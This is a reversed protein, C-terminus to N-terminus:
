LTPLFRYVENVLSAISAINGLSSLLSEVTSKRPRGRSLENALVGIDNVAADCEAKGIAADRGLTQIMANFLRSLEEPNGQTQRISDSNVAINGGTISGITANRKDIQVNVTVPHEEKQDNQHQRFVAPVIDPHTYTQGLLTAAAFADVELGTEPLKDKATSVPWFGKFLDRAVNGFLSFQPPLLDPKTLTAVYTFFAYYRFEGTHRDRQRRLCGFWCTTDLAFAGLYAGLKQTFPYYPNILLGGGMKIFTYNGILESSILLSNVNANQSHDANSRHILAVSRHQADLFVCSLRLVIYDTKREKAFDVPQADKLLRTFNVRRAGDSFATICDQAYEDSLPIAAKVAYNHKEDNM